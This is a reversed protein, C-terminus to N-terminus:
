EVKQVNYHSSTKSRSDELSSDTSDEKDLGFMARFVPMKSLLIKWLVYWASAIFITLFILSGIFSVLFLTLKQFDM